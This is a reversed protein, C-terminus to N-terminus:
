KIVFGLCVLALRRSSRAVLRSMAGDSGQCVAGLVVITHVGKLINLFFFLVPSGESLFVEQNKNSCKLFPRVFVRLLIPAPNLCMKERLRPILASTRSSISARKSSASMPTFGTSFTIWSSLSAHFDFAM